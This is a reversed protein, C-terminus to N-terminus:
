MTYNHEFEKSNKRFIKSSRGKQQLAEGNHTMAEQRDWLKKNVEERERELAQIPQKEQKRM